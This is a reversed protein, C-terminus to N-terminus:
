DIPGTEQSWILKGDGDRVIRSIRDGDYEARLPLGEQCVWRPLTQLRAVAASAAPGAAELEEASFDLLPNRSWLWSDSGVPHGERYEYREATIQARDPGIEWWGVVRNEELQEFAVGYTGDNHREVEVVGDRWPFRAGEVAVELSNLLRKRWCVFTGDVGVAYESWGLPSDPAAELLAAEPHLLDQFPAKSTVPTDQTWRWRVGRGAALAHQALLDPDDALAMVADPFRVDDIDPGFPM